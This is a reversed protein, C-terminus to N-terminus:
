YALLYDLYDGTYDEGGLTLQESQQQGVIVDTVLLSSPLVILMVPIWVLLQSAIFPNNFVKCLHPKLDRSEGLHGVRRNLSALSSIISAHEKNLKEVVVGTEEESDLFEAFSTMSSDSKTTTSKLDNQGDDAEAQQEATKLQHRHEKLSAPSTEKFLTDSGQRSSCSFLPAAATLLSYVVASAAAAVLGVVLFTPLNLLYAQEAEGSVGVDQRELLSLSPASLLPRNVQSTKSSLIGRAGELLYPTLSHVMIM